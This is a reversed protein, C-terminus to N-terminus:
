RRKRDAETAVAAIFADLSLAFPEPPADGGNETQPVPERDSTAATRATATGSGSGSECSARCLILWSWDGM